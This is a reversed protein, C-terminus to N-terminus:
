ERDFIPERPRRRRASLWPGVDDCELFETVILRERDFCAKQHDGVASTQYESRGARASTGGRSTHGLIRLMSMALRQEEISCVTASCGKGQQATLLVRQLVHVRRGQRSRGLEIRRLQGIGAATLHWLDAAACTHGARLGGKRPGSLECSRLQVM